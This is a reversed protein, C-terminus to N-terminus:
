STIFSVKVDERRLMVRYDDDELELQAAICRMQFVVAIKWCQERTQSSRVVYFSPCHKVLAWVFKRCTYLLSRHYSSRCYLAGKNRDSFKGLAVLRAWLTLRSPSTRCTFSASIQSHWSQRDDEIEGASYPDQGSLEPLYISGYLLNLQYQLKYWSQM